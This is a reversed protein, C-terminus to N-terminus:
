VVQGWTIARVAVCSELGVHTALGEGHPVEMRLCGAPKDRRVLLILMFCSARFFECLRLLCFLRRAKFFYLASFFDFPTTAYFDFVLLSVCFVTQLSSLFIESALRAFFRDTPSPRSRGRSATCRALRDFAIIACAQGHCAIAPSGKEVAQDM